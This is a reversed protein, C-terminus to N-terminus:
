PLPAMAHLSTTEDDDHGERKQMGRPLGCYCSRTLSTPSQTPLDFASPVIGRAQQAQRVSKPSRDIEGARGRRRPSRLESCCSDAVPSIEMEMELHNTM